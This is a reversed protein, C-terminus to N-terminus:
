SLIDGDRGVPLGDSHYVMEFRKGSFLSVMVWIEGSGGGGDILYKSM